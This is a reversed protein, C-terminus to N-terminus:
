GVISPKVGEGPGLVIQAPVGWGEAVTVLASERVLAMHRRSLEGEPADAFSELLWNAVVVGLVRDGLFELREYNRAGASSHTLAQALLGKDKFVYGIRAEMPSM